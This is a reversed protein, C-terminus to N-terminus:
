TTSTGPAARCTSSRIAEPATGGKELADYFAAVGPFPLRTRANGLMVTRVAQLFNAIRSQIVTDDIDSIVGFAASPEVVRVLGTTRVAGQEARTPAVLELEFPHWPTDAAAAGAPRDMRSHLRRRRRRDDTRYRRHSRGGPCPSRIVEIRKYTSLLNRWRSDTATSRPTNECEQARGQILVRTGHGYGRYAVVEYPDPDSGLVAWKGAHIADARITSAFSHLRERWDPTSM